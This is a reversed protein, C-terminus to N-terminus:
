LKSTQVQLTAARAVAIYRWMQPILLPAVGVAAAAIAGVSVPTIGPSETPASPTVIAVVASATTAAAAATTTTSVPVALSVIGAEAPLLLCQSTAEFM